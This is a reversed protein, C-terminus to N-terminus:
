KLKKVVKLINQQGDRKYEVGDMTKKVLFIGLGGATREELGKNIDPDKRLLPNFKFGSDTLKLIVSDEKKVLSIDM